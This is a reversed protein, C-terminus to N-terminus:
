ISHEKIQNIFSSWAAAPFELVPGPNKTDQVLVGSSDSMVGVEICNGNFTSRSSKHWHVNDSSNEPVRIGAVSLDTMGLLNTRACTGGCDM